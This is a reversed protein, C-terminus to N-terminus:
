PLLRRQEGVRRPLFRQELRERDLVRVMWPAKDIGFEDRLMRWIDNLARRERARQRDQERYASITVQAGLCGGFAFGLGGVLLFLPLFLDGSLM